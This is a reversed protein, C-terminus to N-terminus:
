VELVTFEVGKASLETVLIPIGGDKQINKITGKHPHKYRNSYGASIMSLKPISMNIKRNYNHHSGHHPIQVTGVYDWYNKYFNIFQRWKQAGKAEYDGFYMVGPLKSIMCTNICSFIDDSIIFGVNKEPGSYLTLSNTNLSGPISKYIEKIRERKDLDNWLVYFDPVSNFLLSDSALKNHLEQSRKKYRFNFPIFVWKDSSPLGIKPNRGIEDISLKDIDIPDGDLEFQSQESSDPVFFVQTDELQADGSVSSDILSNIFPSILINELAYHVILNLKEEKDILPLFLRRVNCYSLLFELGNVHDDHLHSIFVADITQKCRFTKIIERKILPVNNGSGCDYVMTFGKFVETYFAGQGIPHFTRIM